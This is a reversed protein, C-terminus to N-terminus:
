DRLNTRLPSFLRRLSDHRTRKSKLNSWWRKLCVTLRSLMMFYRNIIDARQREAQPWRGSVPLWIEYSLIGSCIGPSLQGAASPLWPGQGKPQVASSFFAHFPHNTERHHSCFFGIIIQQCPKFYPRIFQSLSARVAQGLNQTFDKLIYFDLLPLVVALWANIEIM